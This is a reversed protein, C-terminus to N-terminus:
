NKDNLGFPPPKGGSRVLNKWSKDAQTEKPQCYANGRNERKSCDAYIGREAFMNDMGTMAFIGDFYGGAFLVILVLTLAATSAYFIQNNVKKRQREAEYARLREKVAEDADNIKRPAM